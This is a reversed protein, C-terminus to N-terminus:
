SVTGRWADSVPLSFVFSPPLLDNSGEEQRTVILVIPCGNEAREGKERDSFGASRGFVHFMGGALTAFRRFTGDRFM